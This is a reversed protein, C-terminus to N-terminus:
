NSYSLEGALRAQPDLMAARKEGLREEDRKDILTVVDAMNLTEDTLGAAVAPTTGLADIAIERVFKTETNLDKHFINALSTKGVGREGFIIAHRVKEIAIDQLRQITAKRGAFHAVEDIPPGPTFTELVGSRAAVILSLGSCMM